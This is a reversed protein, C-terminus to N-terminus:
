HENRGEKGKYPQIDSCDKVLCKYAKEWTERLEDIRNM